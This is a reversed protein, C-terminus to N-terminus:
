DYKLANFMCLLMRSVSSEKEMHNDLTTELVAAQLLKMADIFIHREMSPLASLKGIDIDLVGIAGRKVNHLPVALHCKEFVNAM